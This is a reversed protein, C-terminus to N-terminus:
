RGAASRPRSSWRAWPSAASSGTANLSCAARPPPRPRRSASSRGQAAVEEALKVHEPPYINLVGSGLVALTRGGAALAGRHAAADIGRALGSVITLGHNALEKALREAQRLGYHTAHRAGVIGIAMGDRPSLEGRVFLLGPPDHIELLPAPYAEDADSVIRVGNRECFALMAEADITENAAAIAQSLKSGVGPAERLESPAAALVAEPEGFRELLVQRIRPGVGPILALRLKQVLQRHSAEAGQSVHKGKSAPHKCSALTIFKNLGARILIVYSPRELGDRRGPFATRRSFSGHRPLYPTTVAAGVGVNNLVAAAIRNRSQSECRWNVRAAHVKDVPVDGVLEVEGMRSPLVFRLKGHEVKKDRAMVSVVEYADLEPTGIPLGLGALLDSQRHIFEEDVRGLSAALRAACMMGISVAEGHLLKGYGTLTEFAHCFTHGYNLM